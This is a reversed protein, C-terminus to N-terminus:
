GDASRPLTFQFVAGRPENPVAWLRGGHDEVISRSVALGMGLGDRKTTYFAEFIQDPKASALGTGSDRVRVILDSSADTETSISLHRQGEEVGRLAHIANIILNLLVQQVQIRDACVPPLDDALLTRLSIHSEEIERRTLLVIQRVSENADFYEKHLPARKALGRVRAIVESARNADRVIREVAQRAKEMNPPQSALWRLSANGSSVIGTLPQNVEHAISATLEGLTTVRAMHMLQARAEHVSADMSQIQLILYTSAVIAAVSIVCNFFGAKSLSGPTMLFSVATLVICSAAVMVVGRKACFRVSMLVVAVYLVAVAIELDTITDLVFIAVTLSGTAVRLFTSTAIVSRQLRLKM